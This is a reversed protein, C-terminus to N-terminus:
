STHLMQEALEHAHAATDDARRRAEGAARDAARTHERAIPLRM